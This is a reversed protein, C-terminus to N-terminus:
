SSLEKPYAILTTEATLSAATLKRVIFQYELGWSEILPKTEFFQEANHYISLIMVPRYKKITEQAGILFPIEDGEIDAKLLGPVCVPLDQLFSDLTTMTVVENGNSYISNGETGSDNFSLTGKKSSLAIRHLFVNTIGAEEMLKKFQDVNRRSIEFSQITKPNFDSLLYASDGIYAGMDFFDKDNIYEKVKDPVFALGHGYYWLFPNINFKKLIPNDEEAFAKQVMSSENNEEPLRFSYKKIDKRRIYYPYRNKDPIALFRKLMLDITSCSKGDLGEKLKKICEPINRLLVYEKFSIGGIQWIGFVGYQSNINKIANENPQQPTSNDSMMDSKTKQNLNSITTLLRRFFNIKM